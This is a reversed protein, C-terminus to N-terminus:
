IEMRNKTANQWFDSDFSFFSTGVIQKFNCPVYSENPQIIFEKSKFNISPKLSLVFIDISIIKYTLLISYLVFFYILYQFSNFNHVALAYVYSLFM